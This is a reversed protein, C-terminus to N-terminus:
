CRFGQLIDPNKVLELTMSEMKKIKTRGQSPSRFDSVAAAMIVVDVQMDYDLNLLM